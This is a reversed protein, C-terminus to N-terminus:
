PRLIIFLTGIILLVCIAAFIGINLLLADRSRERLQEATLRDVALPSHEDKDSEFDPYTELLAALEQQMERPGVYRQSVSLSLQRTLIREMQLTVAPNLRRAPPHFLALRTRPDYGTVAHHMVVALAYLDSSLSAEGHVQEPAYYGASVKEASAPLADSSFLPVHIIAVFQGESGVIITEPNISGHVIPPQQSALSVLSSCVQYGLEAVLYESLAGGQRQLLAALSEGEPSRLVLFYSGHDNFLDIVQPFGSHQALESQQQAVVKAVHEQSSAQAEHEPILIERVIIRQHLSQMDIALWALGQRRQNEPLLYQSIVRYRGRNLVDGREPVYRGLPRSPTIFLAPNSPSAYARGKYGCASCTGSVLTGAFNCNPCWV